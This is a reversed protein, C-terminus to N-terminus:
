PGGMRRSGWDVPRDMRRYLDAADAKEQNKQERAPRSIILVAVFAIVGLPLAVLLGITMEGLNAADTM